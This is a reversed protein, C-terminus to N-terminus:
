LGYHGMEKNLAALEQGEEDNLVQIAFGAHVLVYDGVAVEPMLQLSAEASVGDYDVVATQEMIKTIKGAIALCM